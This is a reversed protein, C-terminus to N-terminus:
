YNNLSLASSRVNSSLKRISNGGPGSRRSRPGMRGNSKGEDEEQLSKYFKMYEMKQRTVEKWEKLKAGNISKKGTITNRQRLGNEFIEKECLQIDKLTEGAMFKLNITHPRGRPAFHQRIKKHTMRPAPYGNRRLPDEIHRRHDEVITEFLLDNRMNGYNKSHYAVMNDRNIVLDDSIGYAGNDNCFVCTEHNHEENASEEDQDRQRNLEQEEEDESFMVAEEVDFIDATPVEEDAASDNASTENDDEQSHRSRKSHIEGNQLDGASFTRKKSHQFPLESESEREDESSDAFDGSRHIQLQRSFESRNLLNKLPHQSM